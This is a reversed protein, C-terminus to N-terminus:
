KCMYKMVQTKENLEAIVKPDADSFKAIESKLKSEKSRLTEIDKLLV